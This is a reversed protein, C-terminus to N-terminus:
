LLLFRVILKVKRKSSKSIEKLHNFVSEYKKNIQVNFIIINEGKM